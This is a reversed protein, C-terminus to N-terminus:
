LKRKALVVAGVMAILLLVSSLEFPFLYTSFLEGGVLVSNGIRELAQPTVDGTQGTLRNTTLVASLALFLLLGFLLALPRQMPITEIAPIRQPGLLMVVFLFLVMIAGAYVIVQVAALFTANLLLFLIAVMAFNAVMWLVGYVMNRSTVMALASGVALGALIFFVILEM